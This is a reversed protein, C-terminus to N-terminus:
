EEGEDEEIEEEIDEDGCYPCMEIILPTKNRFESEVGYYNEYTTKRTRPIEFTKCCNNCKM